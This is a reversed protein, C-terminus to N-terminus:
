RRRSSSEEPPAFSEEHSAMRHTRSPLRTSRSHVPQVPSRAAPTSRVRPQAAMQSQSNQRTAPATRRAQRSPPSTSEGVVRDSRSLIKAGQPLGMESDAPARETAASSRNKLPPPPPIPTPPPPPAPTPTGGHYPMSEDMYEGDYIPGPGHPGSQSHPHYGAYCQNGCWNGCQDCPGCGACAPPDSLEGWYVEGCGGQCGCRDLCGSLGYLRCNGGGPLAYWIEHLLCCGTNSALMLLVFSCLVLRKM